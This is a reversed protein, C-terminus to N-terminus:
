EEGKFMKRWNEREFEFNVNYKTEKIITKFM